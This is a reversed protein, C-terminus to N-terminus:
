RRSLHMPTSQWLSICDKNVKIASSEKAFQISKSHPCELTHISPTTKEKKQTNHTVQTPFTVTSSQIHSIAMKPLSGLFVWFLVSEMTQIMEFM